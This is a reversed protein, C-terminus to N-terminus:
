LKFVAIKDVKLLNLKTAVPLIYRLRSIVNKILENIYFMMTNLPHKFFEGDKHILLMM